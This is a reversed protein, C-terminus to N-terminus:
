NFITMNNSVNLLINSIVYAGIMKMSNDEYSKQLNETIRQIVKILMCLYLTHTSHVLHYIMKCFVVSQSFVSYEYVTLICM